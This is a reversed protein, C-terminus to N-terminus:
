IKKATRLQELTLAEFSIARVIGASTKHRESQIVAPIFGRTARFMTTRKLASEFKKKSRSNM